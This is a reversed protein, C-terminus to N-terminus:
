SEPNLYHLGYYSSTSIEKTFALILEKDPYWFMLAADRPLTSFDFSKMINCKEEFWECYKQSHKEIYAIQKSEFDENRSSMSNKSSYYQRLAANVYWQVPFSLGNKVGDESIIINGNGM